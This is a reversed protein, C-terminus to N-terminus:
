PVDGFLPGRDDHNPETLALASVRMAEELRGARHEVLSDPDELDGAEVLHSRLAQDDGDDAWGRLTDRWQAPSVGPTLFRAAPSRSGAPWHTFAGEGYTTLWDVVADETGPPPSPDLRALVLMCLRSAGDRADFTAPVTPKVSRPVQRLLAQVSGNEDRGVARVAGGFTKADSDLTLSFLGRWLWRRLLTLSRPHPEPFRDFFRCLTVLVTPTQPLLRAHRIGADSLFALSRRMGAEARLMRPEHDTTGAHSTANGGDHELHHAARVVVNPDIEGFGSSLREAIREPRADASTSAPAMAAFVEALEMRRGSRNMRLFIERAVDEDETEIEYTPVRYDRLRTALETGREILDRRGTQSVRDFLWSQFRAAELLGAVPIAGDGPPQARSPRFFPSSSPRGDAGKRDPDFWVVFPDDKEPPQEPRPHSLGALLSTLRQQGDIVWWADESAPAAIEVPGYRLNAAPASRKWLLLTGIPFGRWLSDFLVQVDEARWKMGRQFAPIRVRGRRARDILEDLHHTDAKIRPRETM